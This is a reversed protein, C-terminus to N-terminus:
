KLDFKLLLITEQQVEVENFELVKQTRKNRGRGTHYFFSSGLFSFPRRELCVDTLTRGGPYNKAKEFASPNYKFFFHQEILQEKEPTM